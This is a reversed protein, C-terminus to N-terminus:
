RRGGGIRGYFLTMMMVWWASRAPGVHDRGGPASRGRSGLEDSGPMTAAQQSVTMSSGGSVQTLTLMSGGVKSISNTRGLSGGRSSLQDPGPTVARGGAAVDDDDAVRRTARALGLQDSRLMAESRGGAATDGKDVTVTRVSSLRASAAPRELPM